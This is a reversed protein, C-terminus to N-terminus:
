IAFRAEIDIMEGAQQTSGSPLQSVVAGSSSGSSFSFFSKTSSPASQASVQVDEAMMRMAPAGQTENSALNRASVNAPLPSAVESRNATCAALALSFFVCTHRM